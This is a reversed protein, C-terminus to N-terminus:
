SGEGGRMAPQQNAFFPTERLKKSAEQNFWTNFAESQRSRRLYALFNPMQAKMEAENVPLRAKVFLLVGGDRTPRFDSAKGPQTGFALEKIVEMNGQIQRVPLEQTRLSFPPLPTPKLKADAALAEFTKGHALGNTLTKYFDSGSKQALMVAHTFKYDETVRSRVQDLPPMESPIVKHYAMLYVADQGAIPQAFPDDPTLAFAARTFNQSVDLDRPGTEQDFPATVHVTLGNTRAASELASAKMPTMEFLPGAFQRAARLAHSMAARRILEERVKAKKADPTTAGEFANTGIRAVNAEVIEDLNTLDKQAQALYNSAPFAVYAVQVREPIRYNAMENTFFQGLAQPTVTVQSLYNSADFFLAETQVEQNERIYFERAEEPAILKGSLGIT